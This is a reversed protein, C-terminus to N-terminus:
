GPWKMPMSTCCIQKRILHQGVGNQVVMLVPFCLQARYPLRISCITTRYSAWRKKVEQYSSDPLLPNIDKETFLQRMFSAPKVPFPQTPSLIEGALDTNVPVKREEIDYVPKGTERELVFIFGSKTTVAVADITKGDRKVTVLAPPSPIDRDWVDHHVSQFHWIRKGTAADLALVCNGYLIMVLEKAVLFIMLPLVLAPLFLEEKKILASVMGHMPAVLM